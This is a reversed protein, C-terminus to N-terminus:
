VMEAVSVVIEKFSVPCYSSTMLSVVQLAETVRERDNESTRRSPSAGGAALALAAGVEAGLADAADFGGGGSGCGRGVRQVPGAPSGARRSTFGELFSSRGPSLNAKRASTSSSLPQGVPALAVQAITGPASDEFAVTSPPPETVTALSAPSPLISSVAVASPLLTVTEM